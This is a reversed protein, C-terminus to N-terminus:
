GLPIRELKRKNTDNSKASIVIETEAGGRHIVLIRKENVLWNIVSFAIALIYWFKFRDIMPM